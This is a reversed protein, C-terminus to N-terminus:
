RRILLRDPHEPDPGLVEIQRHVPSRGESRITLEAEGPKPPDDPRDLIVFDPAIQAVRYTRGGAALDFYAVTSHRDVSLDLSM